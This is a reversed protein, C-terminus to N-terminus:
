KMQSKGCSFSIRHIERWKYYNWWFFFFYPSRHRVNKRKEIGLTMLSTNWIKGWQWQAWNQRCFYYWHQLLDWNGRLHMSWTLYDAGSPAVGMGKWVSDDIASDSICRRPVSSYCMHCCRSVTGATVTPILLSWSHQHVSHFTCLLSVGLWFILLSSSIFGM